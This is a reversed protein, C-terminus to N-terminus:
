ERIFAVNEPSAALWRGVAESLPRLFAFPPPCHDYWALDHEVRTADGLLSPAYGREYCLNWVRTAGAGHRAAIFARLAPAPNRYFAELGRAPYGTAIVRDTIYSLDLDLGTAADVFRRKKKSVLGRLARSIPDRAFSLALDKCTPISANRPSLTTTDREVTASMM